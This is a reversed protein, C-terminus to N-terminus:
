AAGAKLLEAVVAEHAAQETPYPGIDDGPPEMSETSTWAYWGDPRQETNVIIKM